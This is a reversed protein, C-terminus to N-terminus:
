FHSLASVHQMRTLAILIFRHLTRRPLHPKNLSYCWPIAEMPILKLVHSGHKQLMQFNSLSKLPEEM